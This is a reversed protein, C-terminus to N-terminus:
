FFDKCYFIEEAIGDKDRDIEITMVWESDDIYVKVFGFTKSIGYETIPKLYDETDSSMVLIMDTKFKVNNDNNEMSLKFKRYGKSIYTIHTILPTAEVTDKGNVALYKQIKFTQKYKQANVNVSILVIIAIIITKLTKM